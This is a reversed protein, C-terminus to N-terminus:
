ISQSLLTSVSSRLPHPSLQPNTVTANSLSKSTLEVGVGSVEIAVAHTYSLKGMKEYDAESGDEGCHEKIEKLVKDMSEPNKALEYFTWSLACATTDRGAIMFNMVIDRLEQPSSLPSNAIFLM